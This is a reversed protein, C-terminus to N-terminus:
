TRTDVSEDHEHTSRDHFAYGGPSRQKADYMAADAETILDSLSKYASGDACAIGISASIAVEGAELHFPEVLADILRQALTQADRRGLRAAVVFEDGGYRAAIDDRRLVGRVRAAACAILEDGAGHGYQDNVLKFGDLDIFMVSLPLASQPPITDHSLQALLAARNPLGTLTDHAAQYQARQESRSSRLIARESRLLVALLLFLVLFYAVVRDSKDLDAAIMSGLSALVLVVAIVVARQRSREARARRPAALDRMSPQLAAIGVAAYGILFPIFLVKTGLNSIGAYNTAYGLDGIVIGILTVQVLMLAPPFKATTFMAHIVSAFVIADIAPYFAGIASHLDFTEIEHLAPVILLTWATLLAGLAITVTDLILDARRGDAWPRLWQLATISLAAYAALTVADSWLLYSDPLADRLVIGILFLVGTAISWYWVGPPDPQYRRIGTLVAAFSLSSVVLVAGFSVAPNNSSLHVALALAAVAVLVFSECRQFHLRATAM